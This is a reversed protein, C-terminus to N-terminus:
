FSDEDNLVALINKKRQYGQFEYNIFIEGEEITVIYSTPYYKIVFSNEKLLEKYVLSADDVKFIDLDEKEKQIDALISAQRTCWPCSANSFMLFITKDEKLEDVSKLVKIESALLSSIFLCFIIIKKM